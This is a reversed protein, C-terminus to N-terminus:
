GCALWERATRLDARDNVNFCLRMPDGFCSLEREAAIRPALLDLSSRLSRGEDLARELLALGDVPCRALLPQARGELQAMVPGDQGALWALLSGTIFPMDCAITVVAPAPSRAAAFRLGTLIGCLPHRPEEPEYVVEVDVRPLRTSRKAVVVAELGADAAAELPYGLLPRSGLAVSPKAGGIRGGRGGALVAVIAQQGAM